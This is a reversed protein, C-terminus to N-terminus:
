RTEPVVPALNGVGAFSDIGLLGASRLGIGGGGGGTSGGTGGGDYGDIGGSTGGDGGSDVPEPCRITYVVRAPEGFDAPSHSWSLHLHNGRGHGADGDYGVWRFPARPQDQKPEAWLALDTIQRWHGGISTDPVIDTALGIPHEGNAAHVPDDSFADTIFIPWRKRLFKVDNLLRRDIREGPFGPIKVFRGGGVTKCLRPALKTSRMAAGASSPALMCLALAACAVLAAVVGGRTNSTAM